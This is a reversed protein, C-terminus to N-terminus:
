SYYGLLAQLLLTHVLNLPPFFKTGYPMQCLGAMQAYFQSPQVGAQLLFECPPLMVLTYKTGIEHCLAVADQKFKAVFVSAHTFNLTPQPVQYKSKHQEYLTLFKLLLAVGIVMQTPTSLLFTSDTACCANINTKTFFVKNCDLADTNLFSLKLCDLFQTALDNSGKQHQLKVWSGNYDDEADRSKTQKPVPPTSWLICQPIFTQYHQAKKNDHIAKRKQNEEERKQPDEKKKQLFLKKAKKATPTM